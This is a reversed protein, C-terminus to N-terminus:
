VNNSINLFLEKEALAPFIEFGVLGSFVHTHKRVRNNYLVCVFMCVCWVCICMQLFWGSFYPRQKFFFILSSLKCQQTAFVM